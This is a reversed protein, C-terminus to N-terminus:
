GNEYWGKPRLNVFKTMKTYKEVERLREKAKDMNWDCEQLAKKCDMMGYGTEERLKRVADRKAEDTMPVRVTWMFHMCNDIVYQKTEYPKASFEYFYGKKLTDALWDALRSDSDIAKHLEEVTDGVYAGMLGNTM